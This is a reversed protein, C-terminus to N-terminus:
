PEEFPHLTCEPNNLISTVSYTGNSPCQLMTHDKLYPVLDMFTVPTSPSTINNDYAYLLQATRIAKLHNNCTESLAHFPTTRLFLEPRDLPVSFRDDGSADIVVSREPMQGPNSPDSFVPAPFSSEASWDRLNTSSLVRFRRGMDGRLEFAFQGPTQPQVANLVSVTDTTTVFLAAPASTVSGASNSVMVRYAGAQAPTIQDLVLIPATEGPLNTGDCQWQYSFPHLGAAVVSFLAGDNVSVTQTRPSEILFPLNTAVLRFSFSASDSGIAQIQYNTGAQAQFSFFMHPWRTEISKGAVAIGMYYGSLEQIQTWVQLWDAGHTDKSPNLIEVIVNTADTATWSWWVSQSTGGNFDGPPIVEFPNTEFTAGALTGTFSIDDGTLVIRNTYDDNPPAAQAGSHLPILLALTLVAFTVRM